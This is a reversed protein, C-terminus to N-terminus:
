QHNTTQEYKILKIQPEKSPWEKYILRIITTGVSGTIKNIIEKKLDGDATQQIYGKEIVEKLSGSKYTTYHLSLSTQINLSEKLKQIQLV